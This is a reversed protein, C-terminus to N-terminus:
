MSKKKERERKEEGQYSNCATSDDVSSALWFQAVDNIRCLLMM